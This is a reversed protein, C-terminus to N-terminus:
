FAFIGPLPFMMQLIKDQIQKESRSERMIPPLWPMKQPSSDTPPTASSHSELICFFTTCPEGLDGMECNQKCGTRGKQALNLPIRQSQETPLPWLGHHFHSSFFQTRRWPDGESQARYLQPMRISYTQSCQCVDPFKPDLEPETVAKSQSKPCTMECKQMETEEDAFHPLQVLYFIKLRQRWLGNPPIRSSQHCVFFPMKIKVLECFRLTWTQGGWSYTVPWKPTM